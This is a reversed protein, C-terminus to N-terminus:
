RDDDPPLVVGVRQEAGGAREGGGSVGQEGHLHDALVPGGKTVAVRVDEDLFRVNTAIIAILM